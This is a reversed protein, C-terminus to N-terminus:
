WCMIFKIIKATVLAFVTIFQTSETLCIIIYCAKYNIQNRAVNNLTSDEFVLHKVEKPMIPKAYCPTKPM